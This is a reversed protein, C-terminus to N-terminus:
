SSNGERRREVLVSVSTPQEMKELLMLERSSARDRLFFPVDEPLPEDMLSMPLPM